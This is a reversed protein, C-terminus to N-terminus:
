PIEENKNLLTIKFKFEGSNKKNNINNATFTAKLIDHDRELDGVEKNISPIEIEFVYNKTVGSILQVINIKYENENIKSWM